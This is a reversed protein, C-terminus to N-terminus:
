SPIAPPRRAQVLRTLAAGAAIVAAILSFFAGFDWSVTYTVTFFHGVPRSLFGIFVLLLNIGTGIMLLTDHSLVTDFPLSEYGSRLVLYASIILALILTIYEYGHFLGNATLGAYQFWPLFLSVFLVLTAGGIVMDARAWPRVNLRFTTAAAPAPGPAGPVQERQQRGSAPHITFSTGCSPCSAAGDSYSQGCRPCFM